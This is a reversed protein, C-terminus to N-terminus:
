MLMLMLLLFLRGYLFLGYLMAAVVVVVVVVVVLVMAWGWCWCCSCLASAVAVAMRSVGPVTNFSVVGDVWMVVPVGRVVALGAVVLEEASFCAIYQLWVPVVVKRSFPRGRARVVRGTLGSKRVVHWDCLAGEVVGVSRGMIGVVGVKVGVVGVAVVVVVVVVVVGWLRLFRDHSRDSLWQTGLEAVQVAVVVVVVIVVISLQAM